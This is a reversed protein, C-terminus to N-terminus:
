LYLEWILEAQNPGVLFGKMNWFNLIQDMNEQNQHYTLWVIAEGWIESKHILLWQMVQAPSVAFM